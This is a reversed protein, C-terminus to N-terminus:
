DNTKSAREPHAESNAALMDAAEAAADRFPLLVVDAGAALLSERHQVTDATLAICGAFENHQLAHLLVLCKDREPITSVARGSPESARDDISAPANSITVM